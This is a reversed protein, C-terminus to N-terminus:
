LAELNELLAIHLIREPGGGRDAVIGQLLLRLAIDNGVAKRVAGRRLARAPERIPQLAPLNGGAVSEVGVGQLQTRRRTPLTLRQSECHRASSAARSGGFIPPVQQASQCCAASINAKSCQCAQQQRSTEGKSGSRGARALERSSPGAM